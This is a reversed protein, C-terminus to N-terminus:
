STCRPLDAKPNATWTTVDHIAENLTHVKVLRMRQPDFHGGLAEGCNGAPVLFLRAGDHQAGVLKQQIGGIEGVTGDASIEGTGAITKGHTLSGPTLLDYVGLSFMLGASPGGINDSLHLGVDFPFQYTPAIQVELAANSPDGPSAVTHVRVTRLAGGRRVGVSAVTGPHLSRVASIVQEPTHVARGNVSLLLDGAELRGASPGDKEVLVTKVATRFRIGLAHMAAAVANDQSSTMEQASQQEVSKGTDRPAYVDDYPYVTQDPNVWALLAQVLNVHQGPATPIITVLRLAGGDRYSPHGSVEIIRHQGSKALVNITPGPAFIVYKVPYQALAAFCGILLVLALLGAYTRRRQTM